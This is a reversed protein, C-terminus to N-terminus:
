LLVTLLATLSGAAAAFGQVELLLMQWEATVRTCAPDVASRLVPPCIQM